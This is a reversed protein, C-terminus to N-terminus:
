RVLLGFSLTPAVYRKREPRERSSAGRKADGARPPLPLPLVPVGAVVSQPAPLPPVVADGPASSSGNAGTAPGEGSRGDGAARASVDDWEADGGADGASDRGSAGRGSEALLRELRAAVTPGEARLYELWEQLERASKGRALELLPALAQRERSRYSDSM